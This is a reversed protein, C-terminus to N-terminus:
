YPWRFHRHCGDLAGTMIRCCGVGGDKRVRGNTPGSQCVVEPPYSTASPALFTRNRGMRREPREPARQGLGLTAACPATRGRGFRGVDRLRKPLPVDVLSDGHIHGIERSGLKFEVAGFQHPASTIGQWDDLEARIREGAGTVSM